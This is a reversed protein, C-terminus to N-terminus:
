KKKFMTMLKPAMQMYMIFPEVQTDKVPETKHTFHAIFFQNENIDNDFKGYNVESLQNGVLTPYTRTPDNGKAVM